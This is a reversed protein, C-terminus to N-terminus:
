GDDEEWGDDWEIRNRPRETATRHPANREHHETANSISRPRIWDLGTWNLGAVGVGM